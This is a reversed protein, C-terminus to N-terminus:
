HDTLRSATSSRRDTQGLHHLQDPHLASSGSAAVEPCACSSRLALTVESLSASTAIRHALDWGEPPCDSPSNIKLHESSCAWIHTHRHSNARNQHTRALARTPPHTPVAQCAKGRAQNQSCSSNLNKLYSRIGLPSPHLPAKRHETALLQSDLRPSSPFSPRCTRTSCGQFVALAFLKGGKGRDSWSWHINEHLSQLALAELVAALQPAVGRGGTPHDTSFARRDLPRPM